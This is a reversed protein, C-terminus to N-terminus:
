ASGCAAPSSTRTTTPGAGRIPSALRSWSTSRRPVRPEAEVRGPPTPAGGRDPQRRPIGPQAFQTSGPVGHGNRHRPRRVEPRPRQALDTGDFLVQGGVVRGAPRPLLGMIALATVSKGSGSEGLVALTEGARLEFSVGDLPRVTGARTRFEAQLGRIELLPRDPISASTTSEAAQTM